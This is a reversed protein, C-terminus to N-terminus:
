RRGEYPVRNDSVNMVASISNYYVRVLEAFKDTMTLSDDEVTQVVGSFQHGSLLVLKVRKGKYTQAQEFRM